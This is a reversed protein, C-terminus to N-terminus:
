TTRGAVETGADDPDGGFNDGRAGFRTELGQAGNDDRGVPAFPLVAIM